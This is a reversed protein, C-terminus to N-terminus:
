FTTMHPVRTELTPAIRVGNVNSAKFAQLGRNRIEGDEEGLFVLMELNFPFISRRRAM